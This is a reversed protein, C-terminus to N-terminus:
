CSLAPTATNPSCRVLYASSVADLTKQTADIDPPNTFRGNRTDTWITRKTGVRTDATERM